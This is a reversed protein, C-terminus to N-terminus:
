RAVGGQISFHVTHRLYTLQQRFKLCASFVRIGLQCENKWGPNKNEYTIRVLGAGWQHTDIVRRVPPPPSDM